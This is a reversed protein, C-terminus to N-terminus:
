GVHEFSSFLCDDCKTKFFFHTRRLLRFFIDINEAHRCDWKSLSFFFCVVIRCHRGGLYWRFFHLLCIGPVAAGFEHHVSLGKEKENNPSRCHATQDASPEPVGLYVLFLQFGQNRVFLRRLSDHVHDFVKNRRIVVFSEHHKKRVNHSGDNPPIKVKQLQNRGNALFVSSKM